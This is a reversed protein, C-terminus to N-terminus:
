GRYLELMELAFALEATLAADDSESLAREMAAQTEPARFLALLAAGSAPTGRWGAPVELSWFDGQGFWRQSMAEAIERPADPRAAWRRVFAAPDALMPSAEELWFIADGPRSLVDDAWADFLARVASREPEPWAEFGADHMKRIVVELALGPLGADEGRVVLELIRPLFHAYDGESGWTSMAKFPYRGLDDACLESVPKSLLRAVEDDRVCCPCAHMRKPAPRRAFAAYLDDVAADIM